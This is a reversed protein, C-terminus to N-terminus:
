FYRPGLFNIAEVFLKDQLDKKQAVQSNLVITNEKLEGKQVLNSINQFAAKSFSDGKKFFISGNDMLDIGISKSLEKIFHVLGDTSCGSPAGEETEAGILLFQDEFFRYAGRVNSEHSLWSAMFRELHKEVEVKEDLDFIRQGKFIWIKANPSLEDFSIIM